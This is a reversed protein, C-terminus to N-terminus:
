FVSLFHSNSFLFSVVIQKFLNAFKSPLTQEAAIAAASNANSQSNGKKAM